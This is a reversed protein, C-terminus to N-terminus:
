CRLGGPLPTRNPISRAGDPGRAKMRGLGKRGLERAPRGDGQPERDRNRDGPGKVGIEEEKEPDTNGDRVGGGGGGGRREGPREEERSEAQGEGARNKGYCKM